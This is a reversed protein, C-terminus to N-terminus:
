DFRAQACDEPDRAFADAFHQLAEPMFAQKFQNGVAAREDGARAQGLRALDVLRPADDFAADDPAQGAPEGRRLGDRQGRVAAGLM